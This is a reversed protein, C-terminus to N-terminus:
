KLQEELEAVTKKKEELEEELTNIKKNLTKSESTIFNILDVTMQHIDDSVQKFHEIAPSLGDTDM